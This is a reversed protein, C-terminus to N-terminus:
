ETEGKDFFMWDEYLDDNYVKETSENEIEKLCANWGDEYDNTTEIKEANWSGEIHSKKQPMPKLEWKCNYKQNIFQIETGISGIYKEDIDMVLIAKM